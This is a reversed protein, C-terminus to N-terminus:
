ENDDETMDVAIERIGDLRISKTEIKKMYRLKSNFEVVEDFYDTPNKGFLESLEERRAELERIKLINRIKKIGLGILVALAAGVVAIALCIFFNKEM